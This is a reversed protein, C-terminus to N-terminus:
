ESKTPKSARYREIAKLAEDITTFSQDFIKPTRGREWKISWFGYPDTRIASFKQGDNFVVLRENALDKDGERDFVEYSM